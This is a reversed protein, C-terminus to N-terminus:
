QSQEQKTLANEVKQTIEDTLRLARFLTFINEQHTYNFNVPQAQQKNEGVIQVGLTLWGDPTLAVDSSLQDITLDDLVGIVSKLSPQQAKLAEISANQAVQLKGEGISLLKGQEISVKADVINMPFVGSVRGNLEIGAERGAQAILGLDLSQAKVQVQQPQLSLNLREISVNGDFLSANIDSLYADGEDVHLWTSINSLVVGSRVQGILVKSSPINIKGSSYQGAIVTNIQEVYHTDYLASLENIHVTFDANQLNIDGKAQASIDGKVLKLKPEFANLVSQLPVSPKATVVLQYPHALPSYQHKFVAEVGGGKIFHEYVGTRSQQGQSDISINNVELKPTKLSGLKTQASLKTFVEGKGINGSLAFQSSIGRVQMSQSQLLQSALSGSAELQQNKSIDVELQLQSKQASMLQYNLEDTQAILKGQMSVQDAVTVQTNISVNASQMNVDDYQVQKARGQMDLAFQSQHAGIEFRIRGDLGINEAQVLLEPLTDSYYELEGTGNILGGVIEIPTEVQLKGLRESQHAISIAADVQSTQSDVRITNASITTEGDDSSLILRETTLRTGQWLLQSPMSLHWPQNLMAGLVERYPEKQLVTCESPKFVIDANSLDAILHQQNIDFSFQGSGQSTVQAGCTPHELNAAVTHDIHLNVRDGFYGIHAVGQLASIPTPLQNQLAPSSLKLAVNVLNDQLVVESLVDGSVSFHNLKNEQLSVNLKQPLLASIAKDSAITVNDISLLPRSPLTLQLPQWVTQQQKQTDDSSLVLQAVLNVVHIREQTIQTNDLRLSVHQNDLCLQQVNIQKWSSFSWNLCSVSIQQPALYHEAIMVALRERAVYLALFLGCLIVILWKFFKVIM